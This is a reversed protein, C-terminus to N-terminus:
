CSPVETVVSSVDLIYIQRSGEHASDICIFQGRRNWRPHLDCRIAGSLEPPSFFEAVKKCQKTSMNYLLLARYGDSDPYTDTLLWQEDPSFSCHGDEKLVGEGVTEYEGSCDTFLIYTDGIITQRVWGSPCRRTFYRAWKLLPWTWRFAQLRNVPRPKRVWALIERSNRWSYHSVSGESLLCIDKGTLDSTILRTYFGGGPLSFRHLFAFRRGDPSFSLHEIWHEGQVFGKPRQFNAIEALSLLKDAFGKDINILYIGDEKPAPDSAWPDNVGAYGYGRRLRHLRAFNIGLAYRGDPSVAYIPFPLQTKQGTQIEYIYAVLRVGDRDNYIIYREFDPPLWQAMAGQQWNWARTDTLPEFEGKGSADVVGIIAVDKPGPLRAGLDTELALLWKGTGDWPSKDYYGFFHQKPGKTVARFIVGERIKALDRM